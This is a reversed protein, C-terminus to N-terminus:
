PRDGGGGASSVNVKSGDPGTFGIGDDDIASPEADLFRRLDNVDRTTDAALEYMVQDNRLADRLERWDGFEGATTIVEILWRGNLGCVVSNIEM